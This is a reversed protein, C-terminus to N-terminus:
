LAATVRSRLESNALNKISMSHAITDETSSIFKELDATSLNTINPMANM